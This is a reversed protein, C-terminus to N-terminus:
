FTVTEWRSQCIGPFVSIEQLLRVTLGVFRFEKIFLRNAYWPFIATLPSSMCECLFWVSPLLYESQQAFCNRFVCNHFKSAGDKFMKNYNLSSEWSVIGSTQTHSIILSPIHIHKRIKFNQVQIPNHLGWIWFSNRSIPYYWSIIRM